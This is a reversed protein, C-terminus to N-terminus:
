KIELLTPSPQFRYHRVCQNGGSFPCEECALQKYYIKRYSCIAKIETLTILKEKQEIPMEEKRIAEITM